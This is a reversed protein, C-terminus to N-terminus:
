HGSAEDILEELESKMLAYVKLKNIVDDGQEFDQCPNGCISTMVLALRDVTALPYEAREYRLYFRFATRSGVWEGCM